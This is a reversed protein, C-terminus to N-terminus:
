FVFGVLIPVYHISGGRNSQRSISHYRVEIVSALPGFAFTLGVGGSYGLYYRAQANATDPRVNYAGAGAMVYPKATSGSATIVFNGGLALIRLDPNQVEVSGGPPTALRGPFTQYMGDFRWGIPVDSSGFGLFGTVSLGRSHADAFRGTPLGPGAAIGVAYSRQAGAGAPLFAAVATFVFLLLGKSLPM